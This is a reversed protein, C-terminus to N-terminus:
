GLQQKKIQSPNQSASEINKGKRGRKAVKGDIFDDVWAQRFRWHPGVKVARIKHGRILRLLTPRSVGIYKAVENFTLIGHNM